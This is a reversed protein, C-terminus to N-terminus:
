SAILFIIDFYFIFEFPFITKSGKRDSPLFEGVHSNVLFNFGANNNKQMAM